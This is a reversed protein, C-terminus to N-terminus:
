IFHRQCINLFDQTFGEMLNSLYRVQNTFYNYAMVAPIAAFLGFATAILAESIGPAVVALSASGARGIGQFTNMIGWVTGFLGIFPAASATTALFTLSAELRTTEATSARRLARSLNEIGAMELSPSERDEEPQPHRGRKIKMLEQYGSKFLSLLSSGALHDTEELIVELRKREWFIELFSLSRNRAMRLQVYKFIIIGWTTISLFFLVLLVFKVMPGSRRVLEWAGGQNPAGPVIAPLFYLINVLFNELL